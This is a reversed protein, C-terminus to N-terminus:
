RYLPIGKSVHITDIEGETIEKVKTLVGEISVHYYEEDGNIQFIAVKTNDLKFIPFTGNVDHNYESFDYIPQSIMHQIHEFLTFHDGYFTLKNLDKDYEIKPKGTLFIGDILIKNYSKVTQGEEFTAGPDNEIEWGLVSRRSEM